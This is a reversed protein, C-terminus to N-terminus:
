RIKDTGLHIKENQLELLQPCCIVCQCCCCTKAKRYKNKEEKKCNRLASYGRQFVVRHDLPSQFPVTM